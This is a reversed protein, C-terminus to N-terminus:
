FDGFLDEYKKDLQEEKLEEEARRKAQEAARKAQEAAREQEWEIQRRERAKQQSVLQNEYREILEDANEMCENYIKQNDFNSLYINLRDTCFANKESFPVALSPLSFTLAIATFVSLPSVKIRHLTKM